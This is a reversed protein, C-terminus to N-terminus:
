TLNPQSHSSYSSPTSFLGCSSRRSVSQVSQTLSTYFTVPSEQPLCPHFMSIMFAPTKNTHVISPIRLLLMLLLQWLLLLIYSCQRPWVPILTGVFINLQPPGLLVKAQFQEISSELPIYSRLVACIITM